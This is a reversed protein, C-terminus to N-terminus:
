DILWHTGQSIVTLSRNGLVMIIWENLKSRNDNLKSRQDKAWIRLRLLVFRRLSVSKVNHCKPFEIDDCAEEMATNLLKRVNKRHHLLELNTSRFVSEARIFIDFLPESCSKLCGDKYSKLSQLSAYHGVSSSVTIAGICIDCTKNSNIIRSVIYGALYYLSALEADCLFPIDTFSIENYIINDDSEDAVPVDAVKHKDLFDALFDGDDLDYSGSKKAHLFQSVTLIRFKNKFELASPVPNNTRICSFFNELCDSTFRSTLVFKYGSKLLHESIDLISYTTLIVGTQVPKWAGKSGITMTEFLRIVNRLFDTAEHYQSPNKLSLATVQRRSSVLDFWRNMTKLFWATTLLDPTYNEQLVLYELSASNSHSFFNMANAVKMKNFHNPKLTKSTLKPSLKLSLKDQFALLESLHKVTVINSTLNNVQVVWEPLYINQKNVLASKLNKMLHPADALFFLKHNDEAPHQVKNVTDVSRGCSIGFSKWMSQNCAGMDSTVTVIRLGVESALRVINTIIPKLASGYVSNGTFYYAVTQKWRTSIGALMFVMAHSAKGSHGPLTVDGLLQGTQIDYDVSMSISMEDLTLACDREKENMSRVKIELLEFVENLIGSKLHVCELSRRLTRASPLPYGQERLAQFGSPGCAFMLQLSRQITKNSWKSVRCSNQLAKLQDPMFLKKLKQKLVYDKTQYLKLNQKLSRTKNQLRKNALLLNKIQDELTFDKQPSLPTTSLEVTQAVCFDAFM